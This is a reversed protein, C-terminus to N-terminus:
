WERWGRGWPFHHLNFTLSNVWEKVWSSIGREGGVHLGGGAGSVNNYKQQDPMNLKVLLETESYLPYESYRPLEEQASRAPMPSTSSCMELVTNM